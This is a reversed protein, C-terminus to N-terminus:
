KRSAGRARRRRRRVVVAATLGSVSMLFLMSPVSLDTEDGTQVADSEEPKPTPTPEATPTPAATPTPESTPTPEASPTPEAKKDRANDFAAQATVGAELTGTNGTVTTTYGDQNAEEETVTYGIGAPLGTATRVEGDRLAFQAAGNVFEMDGYTGNVSDDALTVTFHFARGTEGDTGSVTKLVRLGAFPDDERTNVFAAAATTGAPVEGTEGTSTSLHGYADTEAIRYDTGGPLGAFEIREGDRLTFTVEATSDTFEIPEAEDSGAATYTGYVGDAEGTFDEPLRFVASFAFAQEHDGYAGDVAKEVTLNGRRVNTLYRDRAPVSAAEADEGSEADGAEEAKDLAPAEDVPVTDAYYVDWGDPVREAVAYTYADGNPANLPLDTYTYTWVDTDTDTWTLTINEAELDVTEWVPNEADPETTRRLTLELTDPRAEDSGDVWTKTGSLAAIQRNTIETVGDEFVYSVRHDSEGYTIKGDNEVPKGEANLELAYYYYLAHAADYKPLEAFKAKWGNEANLEATRNAGDTGQAEETVAEGEASGVMEPDTTRYLGVQVAADKAPMEGNWFKEVSLAVRRVNTIQLGAVTMEEAGDPADTDEATGDTYFVDYGNPVTERVRYELLVGQEDYKDMNAYTFTWTTEGTDSWVPKANAVPKWEESSGAPRRELTLKPEKGIEGEWTKTGQINVSGVLTNEIAFANNKVLAGDRSADDPEYHLIAEERVRYTYASGNPAYLPLNDFTGRWVDSKEGSETWCFTVGDTGVPVTKWQPQEANPNTTRELTLQLTDPRTEYANGNDKWTKTGSISASPTNRITTADTEHEYDARYDKDNLAFRGNEAIPNGDSGLELAYYTYAKGDKDEEPLKAFVASWRNGSNLTETRKEGDPKLEDQPVAEGWVSGVLNKDTTRYLAVQVTTGEAPTEGVWLKEVTFSKSQTNVFTITGNEETRETLIYSDPRVNREEVDYSVNQGNITAPLGSWEATWDPGNLTKSQGAVDQWQGNGIKRRLVMTVSANAPESPEWVKEASISATRTDLTNTVTFKSTTSDETYGVSYDGSGSLLKDDEEIISESLDEGLTYDGDKPQLERVRYTYPTSTTGSYDSVPLGSITESWRDGAQVTNHGYLRVIEVDKWDTGDTSRQVVFWSEWTMVNDGGPRTDYINNSDEWVKEVTLSTTSITNTTKNGELKASDVLGEGVEYADNEFTITQRQRGYAVSEEVVRYTLKVSSGGTQPIVTPLNSFQNTGGWVASDIRGTLTAKFPDNADQTAGKVTIANKISTLVPEELGCENQTFYTSADQWVGDGPSVQLKFTVTLDFGLYDEKISNGGKDQWAKTFSTNTYLTNTLPTPTLMMETGADSVTKRWTGGSGMVYNPIEKETVVYTWAKGSTSYKQLEEDGVGKITFTWQNTNSPNLAYTIKYDEGLKLEVAKDKDVYREVTLGLVNDTDSTVEGQPLEPRLGMANDYDNWQKTGTLSIKKEDTYVNYFTAQVESNEKAELGDVRYVGKHSDSFREVPVDGQAAYTTYGNLTTETVEYVYKSGNPAYIDLNEFAGTWSLPNAGPLSPSNYASEVEASSWTLPRSFRTDQVTEGDNGTYSRKLTFTVSPFGGTTDGVGIPLELLKKVRLEGKPSSYTNTFTFNAAEGPEAVDYIDEGAAGTLEFKEKVVYSIQRGADDYRPLREADDTEGKCVLVGNEVSLTNKGVYEIIFNYSSGDKFQPWQEESIALTAVAKADPNAQLADADYVEFTVAPLDADSYGSPLNGWLKKGNITYDGSLANTFIGEEVLAYQPYTNGSDGSGDFPGINDPKDELNAWDDRKLDLVRGTTEAGWSPTDRNGLQVETGSEMISYQAAQYDYDSAHVLTREVAYYQIEFGYADYKEMDSLTVIWSNSGAQEDVDQGDENDSWKYNELVLEIQEIYQETDPNGAEYDPNPKHVVRYIDLYIDPRLSQNATFDDKWEKYWVVDKVATRYNTVEMTQNDQDHQSNTVDYSVESRSRYEKWIAYLDPYNQAIDDETLETSQNGSMDIWVEEVTYQVVGGTSDYKPLNYFAAADSKQVQGDKNIGIISQESSTQKGEKDLIHVKEGGVQVSDAAGDIGNYTIEWGDQKDAFQLKFVLALQPGSGNNYITKLVQSIQEVVKSGGDLWTKQVKLNIVGLRRNTITYASHANFNAPTSEKEYTVQYRHNQTAAEFIKEESGVTVSGTLLEDETPITDNAKNYKVEADGMMTEVVYVDEAEVSQPLYIFDHWVGDQLTLTVPKSNSDLVADGAKHEDGNSAYYVGFIVPERHLVDGDDVWVKRVFIREGTGLGNFVTTEYDGTEPDRVTDYTPFWNDKGGAELLIYEYLHGEADYKPLNKVVADWEAGDELDEVQVGNPLFGVTEIKGDKKIQFSVYPDDLDGQGGNTTQYIQITIDHDPKTEGGNADHWVKKVRYDITDTLSNEITTSNGNTKTESVYGVTQAKEEGEMAQELEFKGDADVEIKKSQGLAAQIEASSADDSLAEIAEGQYVATEVWRYVLERGLADYQPVSSQATNSMSEAYFNYLVATIPAGNRQATTWDGSEDAPKQQLMLEVAVDEFDAQYAAAKWTKTASVSVTGTLRNSLTGGDYLFTNGATRTEGEPLTDAVTVTGDEDETVKGFVQEYRDGGSAGYTLEERVVYVYAYGDQDYKPLEVSDGNETFTITYTNERNEDSDPSISFTLLRGSSDRVQAATGFGAGERYRWLTFTATPRVSDEEDLWEKTATYGTTGTRTLNLQGGSYVRDTVSASNPVGANSYTILLTDDGELLGAADASPISMSESFESNEDIWFSIPSGDVNYKWIGPVSVTGTDPDYSFHGDEELKAFSVTQNTSGYQWHFEFNKLLDCVQASTPAQADGMRLNITFSFDDTLLYYWGFKDGAAPYQNQNGANIEVFEYGEFQPAEMEWQVAKTTVQGYGNDISIETPVEVTFSNVNWDFGPMKTLGVQAMTSLDLKVKEGGEITFYLTPRIDANAPRKGGEGNNDCWYIDKTLNGWASVDVSPEEPVINLKTQATLIKSPEDNTAQATLSVVPTATNNYLAEDCVLAGGKVTLELAMEDLAQDMEDTRTVTFSVGNPDDPLEVQADAPLGSLKAVVTNGALIKGNEVRLQGEPLSLGEPLTLNFMVTQAKTFGEELLTATLTFAMDPVVAKGDAIPVDTIEKEATLEIQWEAQDGLILPQAELSIQAEEPFVVVDKNEIAIKQYPEDTEFGFSYNVTDKAKLTFSIYKEDTGEEPAKVSPGTEATNVLPLWAAEAGSEDAGQTETFASLNQIIVPEQSVVEDTILNGTPEEAAAPPTSEPIQAPEASAEAEPASSPQASEAPQPAINEQPTPETPMKTSEPTQSPAPEKTSEPEETGEPEETEGPDGTAEPTSSAGATPETSPAPSVSPSQSPSPSPDASPTPSPSPKASSKLEEYTLLEM